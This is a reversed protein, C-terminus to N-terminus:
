DRPTQHGRVMKGRMHRQVVRAAESRGLKKSTIGHSWARSTATSSPGEPPEERVRAVVALLPTSVAEIATAITATSDDIAAISHASAASEEAEEAEKARIREGQLLEKLTTLYKRAVHARHSRQIARIAAEEREARVTSSGAWREALSSSLLETSSKTKALANLTARRWPAQKVRHSPGLLEVALSISVTRFAPSSFLPTAPQAFIQGLQLLDPPCAAFFVEFDCGDDAADVAHVLVLKV